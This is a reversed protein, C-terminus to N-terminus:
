RVVNHVHSPNINVFLYIHTSIMQNSYKLADMTKINAPYANTNVLNLTRRYHSFLLMDCMVRVIQYVTICNNVMKEM